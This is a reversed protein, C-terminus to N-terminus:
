QSRDPQGFASGDRRQHKRGAIDRHGIQEPDQGRAAPRLRASERQQGPQIQAEGSLDHQLIEAVDAAIGQEALPGEQDPVAAHRGAGEAGSAPQCPGDGHDGRGPPDRQRERHGFYCAEGARQDQEARQGRAATAAAVLRDDRGDGNGAARHHQQEQSV